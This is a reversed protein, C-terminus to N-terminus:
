AALFDGVIREFRDKAELQVWHGCRPIVRLEANPIGRLTILAWELPIFRDERGWLLLTPAEVRSLFPKLDGHNPPVPAIEPHRLRSRELREDILEETILSQDVVMARVFQGLLERSPEPESMYRFLTQLGSPQETITDPRASGGMSVVREVLDPREAAIRISIAGGFSNGVLRVPGTGLRDLAAIVQRAGYGVLPEDIAPGDSRGYRPLDFLLDRFADFAPMVAAFNSVGSAGPGSGHLWVVPPGGPSGTEAYHLSIGDAAVDHHELTAPLVSV